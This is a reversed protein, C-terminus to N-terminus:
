FLLELLLPVILLLVSVRKRRARLFWDASMRVATTKTTPIDRLPVLWCVDDVDFGEDSSDAGDHESESVLVFSWIEMLHWPMFGSCPSLTEAANVMRGTIFLSKSSLSSGSTTVALGPVPSEKTPGWNAIDLSQSVAFDHRDSSSLASNRPQWPAAQERRGCVPGYAKATM